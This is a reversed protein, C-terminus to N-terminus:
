VGRRSSGRRKNQTSSDRRKIRFTKKAKRECTDRKAGGAKEFLSGSIGGTFGEERPSRHVTKKGKVLRAGRRIPGFIIITPLGREMAGGSLM